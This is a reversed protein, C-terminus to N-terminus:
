NWGSWGGKIGVSRRRPRGFPWKRLPKRVLIRYANRTKLRENSWLIDAGWLSYAEKCILVHPMSNKSNPASM